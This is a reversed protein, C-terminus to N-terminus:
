RSEVACPGAIVVLGPGGVVVGHVRVITDESKIERSVLKYPKSVRIAEAVGPLDEFEAPDLAGPNGTIGIATRTAGPMIHARFGISEIRACVERVDEESAQARMVILM